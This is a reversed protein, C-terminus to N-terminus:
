LLSELHYVANDEDQKKRLQEAVEVIMDEQGAVVKRKGLEIFIDRPDVAFEKAANLVHVKFASFVGSLGSIISIPDLGMDKGMIDPM